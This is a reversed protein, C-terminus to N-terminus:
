KAKASANTDEPIPNSASNETKIRQAEDERDPALGLKQIATELSIVGDRYLAGIASWQQQVDENFPEAFEHTIQMKLLSDRLHVHTVNAMIAIILNKERDVLEDYIEMRNQRKMYGLIMARKLADGSLTGLGLMSEYDFKPTMTDQHISERLVKKEGEKMDSATPPTVYEFVSNEGDCKLVKGVMEPDVLSDYIDTSIKAIPDAFYNNVDAAKSDIMEDRNIRLEAGDWEKEQSYYIINIKGSPDSTIEVDWNLSRPSRKCKIINASTQIDFHEITVGNEKLYYGYGFAIMNHYQDFMPRLTHGLSRALLVVKVEPTFIEENRYIHYLKACETESGAIRKAQRMTTNFRTSALFKNYAAFAEEYQDVDEKSWKIPNALLFYLAVENIHRQWARPLKEVKYPEKNKRIKNKRFMVEHTEPNYEMIAQDVENDRNQFLTMAKSVDGDRILEDLTRKVGIVNLSINKITKWLNGFYEM